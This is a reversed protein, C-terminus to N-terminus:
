KPAIYCFYGIHDINVWQYFLEVIRARNSLLDCLAYLMACTFLLILYNM